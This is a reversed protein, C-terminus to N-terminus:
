AGQIERSTETVVDDSMQMAQAPLTISFTVGGDPNNRAVLLGEHVLAIERCIALGLGTGGAGSKTKSSQVFKDFVADLENEPIGVGQDIVEVCGADTVGQEETGSLRKPAPM